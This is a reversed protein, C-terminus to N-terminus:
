IKINFYQKEMPRNLFLVGDYWCDLAITVEPLCFLEEWIAFAEENCRMDTFFIVDCDKILTLVEEKPAKAVEQASVVRHRLTATETVINALFHARQRKRKSPREASLLTSFYHLNPSDTKDNRTASDLLNYVFPSHIGHLHKAHWRFQLYRIISTRM